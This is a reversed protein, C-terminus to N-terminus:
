RARGRGRRLGNRVGRRRRRRQRALPRQVLLLALVRPRLHAVRATAAPATGPATAEAAPATAEAAPAAAEAATTAAGATGPSAEAPAAATVAVGVAAITAARHPAEELWRFRQHDRLRGFLDADVIPLPDEVQVRVSLLDLAGVPGSVLLM